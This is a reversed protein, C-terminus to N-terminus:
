GPKKEIKLIVLSLCRKNRQNLLVLSMMIYLVNASYPRNKMRKVKDYHYRWANVKLAVYLCM